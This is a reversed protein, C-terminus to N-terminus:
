SVPVRRAILRGTLISLAAQWQMNFIKHDLARRECRRRIDVRMASWMARLSIARALEPRDSLYEFPWRLAQDMRSVQASSPPLRIRNQEEQQTELEGSASMEALVVLPLREQVVSPWASGYAKPRTAAPMMAMVAFAEELRDLVHIQTWTSPVERASGRSGRGAEVQGMAGLIHARLAADGDLEILAALRARDLLSMQSLKESVDSAPIDGSRKEKTKDAM